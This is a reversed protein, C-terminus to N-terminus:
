DPATPDARRRRLKRVVLFAVGCVMVLLLAIRTVFKWPIPIDMKFRTIVPTQVAQALAFDWVLTRGDDEVRTANSETAAAPLHMIYVLRCAEFQSSPLFISGPLAKAPSIKRSVELTRGRLDAQMEGALHSAAAPLYKLSPGSVIEKLDLASAFGFHIRVRTHNGETVIEHHSSTIAPTDKLFGAVMERLGTDGGYMRTTAAPLTYRIDARGSGDGAFWYEERGDICSVLLVAIGCALIRAVTGTVTM